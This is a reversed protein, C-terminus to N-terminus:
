AASRNQRSYQHNEEQHLFRSGCDWDFDSSKTVHLYYEFHLIHGAPEHHLILLDPLM